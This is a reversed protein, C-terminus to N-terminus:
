GVLIKLIEGVKEKIWGVDTPTTDKTPNILCIIGFCILIIFLVIAIAFLVIAFNFFFANNLSVVVLSLVAGEEGLALYLSLSSLASGVFCLVVALIVGTIAWRVGSRLSRIRVIICGHKKETQSM